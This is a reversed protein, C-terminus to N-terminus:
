AGVLIIRERREAEEIRKPEGKGIVTLLLRESAFTM